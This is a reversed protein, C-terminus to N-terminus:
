RKVYVTFGNIRIKHNPVSLYNSKGNDLLNYSRLPNLFRFVNEFIDYSGKNFIM